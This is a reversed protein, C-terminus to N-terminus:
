RVRIEPFKLEASFSFESEYLKENAWLIFSDTSTLIEEFDGLKKQIETLTTQVTNHAKLIDAGKTQFYNLLPM